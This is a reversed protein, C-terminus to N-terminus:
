RAGTEGRSRGRDELARVRSRGKLFKIPYTREVPGGSRTSPGAVPNWPSGDSLTRPQLLIEDRRANFECMSMFGQPTAAMFVCTELRDQDLDSADMFSHLFFTLKGVPGRRPLLGGRLRWGARLAWRVARSALDPQGLVAIAFAAATALPRDRHAVIGTTRKMVEAALARDSLLDVFTGGAVLAMAARNCSPHGALLTDFSLPTGAGNRIAEIVTAQTVSVGRQRIVGRGTDAGLQFSAFRVVDAHRAFFRVLDAVEHLNGEFVTTNFFVQLGLGRARAIYESRLRHLERESGYGKRKQTMDVHFAVDTLGERALTALLDRSALIGNTFLSCRMGLARIRRVIAVLDDKPRLTPDGGSIQVDTMPGFTAAIEDIRHLLEGLPPDRTVEAHESLYRLTCDLNCRQTVELSVCGIAWRRTATQGDSWLGQRRLQERLHRVPPTSAPLPPDQVIM